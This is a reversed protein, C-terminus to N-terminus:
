ALCARIKLSRHLNFTAHQKLQRNHNILCPTDHHSDVRNQFSMPLAEKGIDSMGEQAPPEPYGSRSTSHYQSSHSAAALVRIRRPSTFVKM